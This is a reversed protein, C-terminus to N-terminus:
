VGQLSFRVPYIFGIKVNKANLVERYKLCLGLSLPHLQHTQWM